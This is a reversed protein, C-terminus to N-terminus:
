LDPEVGARDAMLATYDFKEGLADHVTWWQEATPDFGRFTSNYIRIYRPVGVDGSVWRVGLDTLRWWGTRPSGDGREGPIAEILGWHALKANDGSAGVLTPLHWEATGHRTYAIILLRAMGASIGRRYVKTFQRCVPCCAGDTAAQERLWRRAAGINEMDSWVRDRSMTGPLEAVAAEELQHRGTFFGTLGRMATCTDHDTCARGDPLLADPCVGTWPAGTEGFAVSLRGVARTWESPEWGASLATNALRVALADAGGRIGVAEAADAPLLAAFEVALADRAETEGWSPRDM